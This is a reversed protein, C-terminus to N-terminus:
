LKKSQHDQIGLFALPSIMIGLVPEALDMERESEGEKPPPVIAKGSRAPPEGESKETLKKGRGQHKDGRWLRSVGRVKTGGVMM